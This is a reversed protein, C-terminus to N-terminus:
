DDQVEETENKEKQEPQKWVGGINWWKGKQESFNMDEITIQLPHSPTLNGQKKLLSQIFKKLLPVPSSFDFRKIVSKKNVKYDNIVEMMFQVKSSTDKELEDIKCFVQKFKEM